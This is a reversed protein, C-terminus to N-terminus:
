EQWISSMMKFCAWVVRNHSHYYPDGDLLTEHPLVEIKYKCGRNYIGQGITSGDLTATTAYGGGPILFTQYSYASNCFNLAARIVQTEDTLTDGNSHCTKISLATTPTPATTMLPGSSTPKTLPISEYAHISALSISSTFITSTKTDSEFTSAETTEPHCTSAVDVTHAKIMWISGNIAKWKFTTPLPWWLPVTYTSSAYILNVDSVNKNMSKFVSEVQSGLMGVTDGCDPVWLGTNQTASTVWFM